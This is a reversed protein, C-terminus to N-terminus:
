MLDSPVIPRDIIYLIGNDCSIIALIKVEWNKTPFWNDGRVSVPDGPISNTNIQNILLQQGGTWDSEITKNNLDTRLKLKRDIMQWPKIIFPLIHYRLTQLASVPKYAIDLQYKLIEDFRDNVPAFFTIGQTYMKGYGVYDILDKIKSLNPDSRIIDYITTHTNNDISNKPKNDQQQELAKSVIQEQEAPTNFRTNFLIWQMWQNWNLMPNPSLLDNSYGSRFVLETGGAGGVNLDQHIDSIASYSTSTGYVASM